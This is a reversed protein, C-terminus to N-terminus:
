ANYGNDMTIREHIGNKIMEQIRFDKCKTCTYYQGASIMADTLAQDESTACVEKRHEETWTVIYKKFGSMKIDELIFNM